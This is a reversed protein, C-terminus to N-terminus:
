PRGPVSAEFAETMARFSMGKEDPWFVVTINAAPPEQALYLDTTWDGSLAKLLLASPQSAAVGFQGAPVEVQTVNDRTIKLSGDNSGNVARLEVTQGLPKENPLLLANVRYDPLPKGNPQKIPPLPEFDGILVLTYYGRRPIKLMFDKKDEESKSVSIELEGGEIGFSSIRAGPTLGPYLPQGNVSLNIPMPSVGNLIQVHAAPDKTDASGQASESPLQALTLPIALTQVGIFVVCCMVRDIVNM